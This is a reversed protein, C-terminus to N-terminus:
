KAVYPQITWRRGAWVELIQGGPMYLDWCALEFMDRESDDDPADDGACRVELQHGNDFEVLLDFQLLSVAAAVVQRGIIELLHIRAADVEVEQSTIESGDARFLTWPSASTGLRWEGYLEGAMPASSYALKAGFELYLEDGYSFDTNWCPKGILGSIIGNLEALDAEDNVLHYASSEYPQIVARIRRRRIKSGNAL